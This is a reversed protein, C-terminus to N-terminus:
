TYRINKVHIKSSVSVLLLVYDKILHSSRIHVIKIKKIEHHMSWM